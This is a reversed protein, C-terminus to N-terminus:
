RLSIGMGIAVVLLGLALVFIADVSPVVRALASSTTTQTESM